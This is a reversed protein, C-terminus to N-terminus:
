ERQFSVVSPATQRIVFSCSTVLAASADRLMYQLVVNNKCKKILLMDIFDPFHELKKLGITEWPLANVCALHPSTLFELPTQHGSQPVMITTTAM